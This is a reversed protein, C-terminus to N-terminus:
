NHFLKHQTNGKSFELTMLHFDWLVHSISSLWQVGLVIDCGGLPLPLLDVRCEYRGISLQADKNCGSSNVKGRDAIVEFQKIPHSQWGFNKFLRSDVFNHTNGSYLLITVSQGNVLEDVKMTHVNQKALTDYYACESFSM